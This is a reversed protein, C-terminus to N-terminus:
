GKGGTSLAARLFRATEKEESSADVVELMGAAEDIAARLADREELLAKGADEGLVLAGVAQAACSSLALRDMGSDQGIARSSATRKISVLARRMSAACAKSKELAERMVAASAEAKEAREREMMLADRAEMVMAWLTNGYKAGPQGMGVAELAAMMENANRQPLYPVGRLEDREREAQERAARETVIDEAEKALLDVSLRTAAEAEKEAAEAHAEAAALADLLREVKQSDIACYAECDVRLSEIESKTITM